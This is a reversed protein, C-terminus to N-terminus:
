PVAHPIGRMAPSLVGMDKVVLLPIDAPNLVVEVMCADREELGLSRTLSM